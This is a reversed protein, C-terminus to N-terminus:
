VYKNYTIVKQKENIRKEEDMSLGYHRICAEDIAYWRNGNIAYGIEPPLNIWEEDTLYMIKFM